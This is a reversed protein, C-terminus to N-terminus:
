SQTHATSITKTGNPNIVVKLKDFTDDVAIFKRKVLDYITIWELPKGKKFNTEISIGMAPWILSAFNIYGDKDDQLGGSCIVGCVNGNERFIPGGSMGPEFRADTQFCPFNLMGSERRPSFIEAIKGQTFATNQSYNVVRKNDLIESTIKGTSGYYGFGLIHEGIKPVGPSLRVCPLRLFKNHKKSKAPSLACIAIDLESSFWAKVIPRLGGVIEGKNPGTKHKQGTLQFAWLSFEKYFKNEGRRPVKLSTFNELVHKATMIYGDAEIAFGTGLPLIEGDAIAIIPMIAQQTIHGFEKLSEFPSSIKLM